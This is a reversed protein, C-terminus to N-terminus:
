NLKADQQMDELHVIQKIVNLEEYFPLESLFNINKLRKIKLNEIYKNYLALEKFYGVM